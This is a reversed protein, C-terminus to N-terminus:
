KTYKQVIKEVTGDAKLEGIAKQVKALINPDIDKHFAFCTEGKELLYIEEYKSSDINELKMNWALTGFEYAVADLRDLDLKKSMNQANNSQEIQNKDIGAKLVLEEGIDERVVGIKLKKADEISKIKLNKSKKAILSTDSKVLPSTFKFLKTREETYAMSFLCTKVDEQALKYGRAWPVIQIDTVQKNLGIKKWIEVLIDVFIGKPINNESYNYPQYEETLWVIKNIDQNDARLLFSNLLFSSFVVLFLIVKRM